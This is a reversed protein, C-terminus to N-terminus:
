VKYSGEVGRAKRNAIRAKGAAIAAEMHSIMQENEACPFLSNLQKTRHILVALVIETTVGNVGNAPIPGDQFHLVSPLSSLPQTFLAETPTNFTYHHARSNCDIATVGGEELVIVATSKIEFDTSM